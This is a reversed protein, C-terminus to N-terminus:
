KKFKKNPHKKNHKHGGSPSKRKKNANIKRIESKSKKVEENSAWPSKASSKVPATVATTTSSSPRASVAPTNDGEEEEDNLVASTTATVIVGPANYQVVTETANNNNETSEFVEDIDNDSADDVEDAPMVEKLADELEGQGSHSHHM